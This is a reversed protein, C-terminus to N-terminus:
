NFLYEGKSSVSILPVTKSEEFHDYGKKLNEWFAVLEPQHTRKARIKEFSENDLKRPFIHVPIKKQGASKANVALVYLEKIKDDTIPICGITACGGHIFIDSGLGTKNGLIRDSENPYNIGLSLHFNSNPNFRDIKYFGEPIQLDGEKRKPGSKGSFSCFSYDLLHSFIEKNTPKVWVELVREKKFARLFIEYNSEDITQEKLLTEIEGEKQEYAERVRAYRKQDDQFNNSVALSVIILDIIFSFSLYLM